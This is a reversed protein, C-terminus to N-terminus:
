DGLIDKLTELSSSLEELKGENVLEAIKVCRILEEKTFTGDSIISAFFASLASNIDIGSGCIMSGNETILILVEECKDLHQIAEKKTKLFDKKNEEKKEKKMKLFDEFKM